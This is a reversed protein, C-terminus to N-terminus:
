SIIFLTGNIMITIITCLTCSESLNEKLRIKGKEMMTTKDHGDTELGCSILFPPKLKLYEVDRVIGREDNM